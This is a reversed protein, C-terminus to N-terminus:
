WVKSEGSEPGNIRVSCVPKFGARTAILRRLGLRAAEAMGTHDGSQMGKQRNDLQESLLGGLEGDAEITPDGQPFVGVTAVWAKWGGRDDPPTLIATAVGHAAMKRRERIAPEQAPWRQKGTLWVDPMLPRIDADIHEVTGAAPDVLLKDGSRAQLVKEEGVLEELVDQHQVLHWPEGHVPLV